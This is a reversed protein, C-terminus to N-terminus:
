CTSGIGNLRRKVWEMEEPTLGAFRCAGVINGYVEDFTGIFDNAGCDGSRVGLVYNDSTRCLAALEPTTWSQQVLWGMLAMMLGSKETYTLRDPHVKQRISEILTM